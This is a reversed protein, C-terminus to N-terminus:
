EVRVNRVGWTYRNPPNYVSSFTLVNASSDVVYSDLLVIRKEEGWVNNSGLAYGVFRGNVFIEVEGVSDIDYAEYVIVLDGPQGGFSFNVEDVHSQDEGPINGYSESAPLAIAEGAVRINRVGWAYKNPPNYISSFTLMNPSSDWVYEDLLVIRKEEGWVNNSGLAYGVFEGNVSIEVEGVSDIDYAEYVIVLDGPQGGFSFNAEDVHSQDEGPINGYSDSIPLAAVAGTVAVDRVGWIYNNPPNFINNFVIINAEADDVYEDPLIVFQQGGWMEDAGIAHGIEQGNLFIRVEDDTDIDYAEYVIVIDGSQGDFSFEVQGVHTQDSGPINGYEGPTGIPIPEEASTISLVFGRKEGNLSGYGVIQGDDNIDRAFTLVWESLYVLNNLDRVGNQEDFVFAHETADDQDTDWMIGVMQGSANIGYIEGYPFDVPMTIQVPANSKDPWYFPLSQNPAAIVHGGIMGSDNIAVAYWEGNEYAPDRQLTQM